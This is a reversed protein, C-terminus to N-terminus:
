SPPRLTSRPRASSRGPRPSRTSLPAHAAGPLPIRKGDASRPPDPDYPNSDALTLRLTEAGPRAPATPSTPRVVGLAVDAPRYGKRQAFRLLTDQADKSTIFVDILRALSQTSQPPHRRRLPGMRGLM